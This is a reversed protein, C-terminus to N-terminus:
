QYNWDYSCSFTVSGSSGSPNRVAHAYYYPYDWNYSLDYAPSSIKIHYGFYETDRNYLGIHFTYAPSWYTTSSFEAPGTLYYNGHIALYGPNLTTGYSYSRTIGDTESSFITQGVTVEVIKYRELKTFYTPNGAKDIGEQENTELLKLIYMSQQGPYQEEILAELNALAGEGAKFEKGLYKSIGDDQIVTVKDNASVANVSVLFFSVAIVVGILIWKRSGVPVKVMELYCALSEKM